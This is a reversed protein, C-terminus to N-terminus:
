KNTLTYFFGYRIYDWFHQTLAMAFIYTIFAIHLTKKYTIGSFWDRKFFSYYKLIGYGIVFGYFIGIHRTTFIHVLAHQTMAINWILTAIILVIGLEFLQKNTQKIEKLGLYAFFFFAPGPILFFREIRNMWDFPIGVYDMLVLTRKMENQASANGTTRLEAAYTMDKIATDLSNFYLVNQYFHLAFGTFVMFILFTNEWTVIKRKFIWSMGLTVVMLYTIPEFSVNAAIIFLFGCILILWKNNQGGKYYIFLVYVYIWKIFEEYLHKHLNDAWFIFYNSLVLIMSGIFAANKDPLINKLFYFIFFFFVISLIIPFIRVLRDSDTNLIKAYIGALIDPLAPYHTYANINTENKDGKYNHIPLLFSKTFGFDFFYQMASYTNIDSYADGHISDRAKGAEFLPVNIVRIIIISFCFIFAILVLKKQLTLRIM